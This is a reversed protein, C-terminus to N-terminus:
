TSPELRDSQRDSALSPRLRRRADISRALPLDVRDDGGTPVSVPSDTTGIRSRQRCRANGRRGCARASPQESRSPLRWGNRNFHRRPGPYNRGHAQGAEGGAIDVVHPPSAAVVLVPQLQAPQEGLDVRCQAGPAVGLPHRQGVQRGPEGLEVGAGPIRRPQLCRDFRAPLAQGHEVRGDDLRANAMDASKQLRPVM